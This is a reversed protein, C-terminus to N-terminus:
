NSNNGGDLVFMNQDNVAGAVSGNPAVGPQLETFTNVDHNLSPLAAIAEPAITSGVTSNLTQLETGLVQVEVTEATSGVKLTLNITTQTGVSVIVGAARAVSFGQKSATMTYTAPPVNQITYSGSDNSVARLAVGASTNTITIAAGPIVASSPDTITGVVTGTNTAQAMIRPATVMAALLVAGAVALSIRHGTWRHM